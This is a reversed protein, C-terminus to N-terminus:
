EEASHSHIEGAGEAHVSEGQIANYLEYIYTEFILEAEVRERQAEVAGAQAAETRAIQVAEYKQAVGQQIAEDLLTYVESLSGTELAKAAAALAPGHDTEAKLGTYPAGEGARHLRVATEFFFHDALAEAEAGLKRVELTHQFAAVLEAEYEPRVYPLVLKVDGSELAARAATVVPGNIADCHAQAPAPQILFMVGALLALALMWVKINLGFQRLQQLM